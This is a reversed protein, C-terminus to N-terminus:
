ETQKLVSLQLGDFCDKFPQTKGPLLPYSIMDETNLVNDGCLLWAGQISRGLQLLEKWLIERHQSDNKSYVVTLYALFNTNAEKVECHIFQEYIVLVSGIYSDEM